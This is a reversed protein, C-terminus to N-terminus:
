SRVEHPRRDLVCSGQRKDVTLLSGLGEVARGNIMRSDCGDPRLVPMLRARGKLFPSVQARSFVDSEIRLGRPIDRLSAANEMAQPLRGIRRREEINTEPRPTGSVRREAGRRCQTQEIGECTSSPFRKAVDEREPARTM